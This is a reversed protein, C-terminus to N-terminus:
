DQKGSNTPRVHAHLSLFPPTEGYTTHEAQADVTVGRCLAVHRPRTLPPLLWTKIFTYDPACPGTLHSVAQRQAYTKKQSLITQPSCTKSLAVNYVYTDATVLPLLPPVAVVGVVAVARSPPTGAPRGDGGCREERQLDEEGAEEAV